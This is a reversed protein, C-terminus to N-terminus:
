EMYRKWLIELVLLMASLFVGVLLLLLVPAAQGLEVQFVSNAALCPPKESLWIKEQRQLLGSQIM